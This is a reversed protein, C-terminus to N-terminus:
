RSRVVADFKKTIKDVYKHVTEENSM